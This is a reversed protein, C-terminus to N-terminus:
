KSRPIEGISEVVYNEAKEVDTVIHRAATGAEAFIREDEGRGREAINRAIKEANLKITSLTSIVDRQAIVARNRMQLWRRFILRIGAAVLAGLLILSLVYLGFPTLSFGGITILPRERATFSPTVVPLSTAGFNNEAVAEVRYEGRKLPRDIVLGWNGKEDSHTLSSEVIIGAASKLSVMIAASPLATGSIPLGGEGIYINDSIPSVVPSAIPLIELEKIYESTNGAKDEASILLARKGPSQAPLVLTTDTTIIPESNGIQIKYSAVGSGQDRASFVLKPRPNDTVFSPEANVTLSIPPETDIAIRYHAVPGWGIENKFRAHLYWVGGSLTPFTKNDFLGESKSPIFNPQQNLTTAIDTVDNPLKWQVLFNSISNYWGNQDPYLLVKLEPTSPFKLSPVAPRTIPTPPLVPPMSPSIIATTGSTSTSKFTIGTMRSLVNTGSGDSATIAGDTFTIDASGAGVVRFKVRLVDLSKGSFGSTAGGIFTLKGTDNSYTPDALWFSFVSNSKDVGTINVIGKPFQLTAQAANIGSDASIRIDADFTDGIVFSTKDTTLYLNAATEAITPATTALLTILLFIFLFRYKM